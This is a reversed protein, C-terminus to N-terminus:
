RASRPRWGRAPTPAAQWWWGAGRARDGGRRARERGPGVFLVPRAAAMAGYVKSPVAIGVFADRLTVLHAGALSLSQHLAERPFYDRYAFNPLAHERAFAEIRARQPGDGVFLFYARPDDRLIRMAELVPGFEHVV